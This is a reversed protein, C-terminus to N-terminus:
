RLITFNGGNIISELENLENQLDKIISRIQNLSIQAAQTTTQGTNLQYSTVGGSAILKKELIKYDTLDSKIEEIRKYIQEM